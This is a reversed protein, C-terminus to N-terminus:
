APNSYNREDDSTITITQASSRGITYDTSTWTAGGLGQAVVVVAADTAKTRGGQENNDYDFTWAIETSIISGTISSGSPYPNSTVIIASASDFTNGNANSFYMTYITDSDTEDTLNTSFVLNGTAVYPYSVETSTVPLYTNTDIGSGDVTIDRFTIVNTSDSDFDRILVGPKTKLTDGVYELLLEALNGYM